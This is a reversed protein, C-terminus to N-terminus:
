KNYSAQLEKLHRLYNEYIDEFYGKFTAINKFALSMIEEMAKIQAEINEVKDEM